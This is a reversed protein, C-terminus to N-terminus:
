RGPGARRCAEGWGWGGLEWTTSGTFVSADGLLQLNGGLSAHFGRSPRSTSLMWGGTRCSLEFGEALESRSDAM